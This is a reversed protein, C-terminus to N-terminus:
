LLTLIKKKMKESSGREMALHTMRKLIINHIAFLMLSKDGKWKKTKPYIFSILLDTMTGLATRM